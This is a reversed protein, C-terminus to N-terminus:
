WRENEKGAVLSPLSFISVSLHFLSSSMVLSESLQTICQINKILVWYENEAKGKGGLDWEEWSGLSFNAKDGTGSYESKGLGIM